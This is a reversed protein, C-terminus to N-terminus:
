HRARVDRAADERRDAILGDSVLCGAEAKARAATDLTTLVLDDTVTDM